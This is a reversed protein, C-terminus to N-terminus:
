RALVFASCVCASWNDGKAMSILLHDLSLKGVPFQTSALVPKLAHLTQRSMPICMHM